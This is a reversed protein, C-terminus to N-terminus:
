EQSIRFQYKLVCKGKLSADRIERVYHGKEDIKDPNSTYSLGHWESVGFLYPLGKQEFYAKEQWYTCSGDSLLDIELQKQYDEKSAVEREWDALAGLEKENLPRFGPAYAVLTGKEGDWTIDVLSARPLDLWSSGLKLSKTQVKTVKRWGSLREPPTEGWRETLLFELPTDKALRFFESLTIM